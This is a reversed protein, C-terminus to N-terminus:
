LVVVRAGVSVRNYLDTVHENLMRVCGNSVARGISWPATTGHIRYYTDRKGRYLYIARAGLPNGPGGPVGRAFRRYKPNRRMMNKTPTWRPWKAKRGVRASGRFALGARGVGVGYRRATQGTEVLYLFRNRPDVVITGPSYGSFAVTQPQYKEALKFAKRRRKRRKTHHALADSTPGIVTTTLAALAAGLLTRRNMM